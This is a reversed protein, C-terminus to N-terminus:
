DPCDGSICEGDEWNEEAVIEGDKNWKIHKGDKKDDIWNGERLKNNNNIMFWWRTCFGNLKNEKYIQGNSYYYYKTEGNSNFSILISFILILLKKM